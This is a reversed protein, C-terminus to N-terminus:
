LALAINIAYPLDDLIRFDGLQSRQIWVYESHEHDLNIAPKSSLRIVSPFIIYQRKEQPNRLTYSQGVKISRENVTLGIEEKIEQTIQSKIPQVQDIFGTVVSWYGEADALGFGRKLLLLEDTYMVVCLIIPAKDANTYNVRGDEFTGFKKAAQELWKALNNESIGQSVKYSKNGTTM